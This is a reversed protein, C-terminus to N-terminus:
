GFFKSANDRLQKLTPSRHFEFDFVERNRGRCFEHVLTRVRPGTVGIIKGVEKMDLGELLVKRAVMEHRETRGHKRDVQEKIRNREAARQMKEIHYGIKRLRRKAEAFDAETVAVSASAMFDAVEALLDASSM